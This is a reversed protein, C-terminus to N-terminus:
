HLSFHGNCLLMNTFIFHLIFLIVIIDCINISYFHLYIVASHCERETYTQLCLTLMQVVLRADDVTNRGGVLSTISSFIVHKNLM